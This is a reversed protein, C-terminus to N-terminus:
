FSIQVSDIEVLVLLRLESMLFSTLPSRLFIPSSYSSFIVKKGVLVYFIQRFIFCSRCFLKQVVISSGLNGFLCALRRLFLYSLLYLSFSVFSKLIPRAGWPLSDPLLSFNRSVLFGGWLCLWPPLKPVESPLTITVPPELSLVSFESCFNNGFLVEWGLLLECAEALLLPHPFPALACVRTDSGLSPILTPKWSSVRLPGSQCLPCLGSFINPM